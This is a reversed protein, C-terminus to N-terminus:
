LGLCSGPGYFECFEQCFRGSKEPAPEEVAEEVGRLWRFGAAAVEPRYEDKWVRLDGESGDRPIAVLAVHKVPRGSAELLAGYAQVQQTQQASPFHRLSKMKTSKWDYLTETHKDYLDVHGLVGDHEVELEIEYRDGFPDHRRFAQEIAAHIATGMIAALRSTEQVPAVGQLRLWAQKRCSGIASPGLRRQRSRPRSDDHSRLAEVLTDLIDDSM